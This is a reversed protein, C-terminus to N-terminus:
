ILSDCVGTDFRTASRISRDPGQRQLRGGGGGQGVGAGGLGVEWGGRGAEWWGVEVGGAERLQSHSAPLHTTNLNAPSLHAPFIPFDARIAASEFRFTSTWRISDPLAMYMRFCWVRFGLGWDRLGLGFWSKTYAAGKHPPTRPAKFGGIWSWTSKVLEGENAVHLRWAYLM